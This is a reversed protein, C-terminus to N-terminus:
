LVRCDDIVQVAVAVAQRGFALSKEFIQQREM